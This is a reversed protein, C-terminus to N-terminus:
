DEGRIGGVRSVELCPSTHLKNNYACCFHPLIDPETHYSYLLFRVQSSSFFCAIVCSFSPSIIKRFFIPMIYM